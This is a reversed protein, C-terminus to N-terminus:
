GADLKHALLQAFEQCNEQRNSTAVLKGDAALLFTGSGYNDSKAALKSWCLTL